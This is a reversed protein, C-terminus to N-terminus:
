HNKGKRFIIYNITPYNFKNNDGHEYLQENERNRYLMYADGGVLYIADSIGLDALAESFDYLSERNVSEIIYLDEGQKALARRMAKGKLKNEQIEGDIVLAYQRFFYGNNAICYDKIEDNLSIGISVNGDIIACYGTKRKGTSLQKGKFVYDGLIEKNDKRVDAAQTVLFFTSDNKDPLDFSLEAKLNVLSYIILPVDNISDVSVNVASEERYLISDNVIGNVDEKLKVIDSSDENVTKKPLFLFLLLSVVLFTIIAIIWKWYSKKSATGLVQIEDEENWKMKM